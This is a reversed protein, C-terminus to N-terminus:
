EQSRRREGAAERHKAIVPTEGEEPKRSKERHANLLTYIFLGFFFVAAIGAIIYAIYM